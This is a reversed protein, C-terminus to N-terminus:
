KDTPAVNRLPVGDGAFHALREAQRLEAAAELLHDFARDLAAISIIDM